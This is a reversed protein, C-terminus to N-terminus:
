NVYDGSLTYIKWGVVLHFFILGFVTVVAILSRPDVLLVVAAIVGAVGIGLNLWGYGKGFVPSGLMSAGLTILSLPLVCLGVTQTVQRPHQVAEGDM